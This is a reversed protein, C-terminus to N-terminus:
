SRAPSLLGPVTMWGGALPCPNYGGLSSHPARGLSCRVGGSGLPCLSLSFSITLLWGSTVHSGWLWGWLCPGSLLAGFPALGLTRGLGWSGLEPPALTVSVGVIAAAQLAQALQRTDMKKENSGLWLGVLCPAM